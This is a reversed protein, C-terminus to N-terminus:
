SCTATWVDNVLTVSINNGNNASENYTSAAGVVPNDYGFTWVDTGHSFSIGGECGAGCSSATAAQTSISNPPIPNTIIHIANGHDPDSPGAVTLDKGTENIVNFSCNINSM